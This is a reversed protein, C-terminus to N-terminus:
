FFHYIGIVGGLPPLFISAINLMKSFIGLYHWKDIVWVINYIYGVGLLILVSGAGIVSLSGSNKIIYYQEKLYEFNGISNEPKYWLGAIIPAIQLFPIFCCVVSLTHKVNANKLRLYVAWALILCHVIFLTIPIIGLEGSERNLVITLLTRVFVGVISWVILFIFFELRNIGDIEIRDFFSM